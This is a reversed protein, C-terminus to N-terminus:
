SRFIQSATLSVPLGLVKSWTQMEDRLRWEGPETLVIREPRTEHALRSVESLLSGSTGTENLTRYVIRWGRARLEDAFHRMAAFLFAIKKKHHRVYTAEEQVEAILVIDRSPDGARLSALSPSLQDGLM